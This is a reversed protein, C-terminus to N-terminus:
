PLWHTGTGLYMGPILSGIWATKGRSEGFYELLEVYMIGFSFCVGDVIINVFMSAFVVLWGWGGDPPVPLDPDELPPKTIAADDNQFNRIIVKSGIDSEAHSQSAISIKRHKPNVQNTISTNLEEGLKSIVIIKRGPDCDSM